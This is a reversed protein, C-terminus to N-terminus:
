PHYFTIKIKFNLSCLLSYNKTFLWVFHAFSVIVAMIAFVLGFVINFANNKSNM